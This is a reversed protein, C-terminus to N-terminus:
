AVAKLSLSSNHVTFFQAREDLHSFTDNDIGTMWVQAPLTTLIDFLIHRRTKDLHAAVEDLLLIPCQGQEQMQTTMQALIISLLLAKQEGTSCFVADINKNTHLVKFDATQPGVVAGGDAYIKRTSKLYHLFIDEVQAASKTYLKQEIFGTLTISPTPFHADIPTKLHNGMRHVVDLRSASIAVGLLAMKEELISLWKDDGRGERLLMSWQKLANNYDTMRTAHLADFSQVLRDLFRRRSAPDTNFLRDQAPTLWLCKFYKNLQEQKSINKGDIRMQRRTSEDITGTGMKTTIGKNVVAASVSWKAPLQMVDPAIDLGMRHGVDSLKAGRLGRGASLFSVAELINTKGAGNQGTLVVPAFSDSLEMNLYSYSRFGTLRLQKIGFQCAM